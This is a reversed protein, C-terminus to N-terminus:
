WTVWKELKKATKPGIGPIEMLEEPSSFPGMERRMEAIQRARRSGIGPLLPLEDERARNLNIREGCLLGRAQSLRGIRKLLCKGDKEELVVLAGRDMSEHIAIHSCHTPVGLKEVAIEVIQGPNEPFVLGVGTEPHSVGICLPRIPTDFEKKDGTNLHSFGSAALLLVVFACLVWQTSSIPM